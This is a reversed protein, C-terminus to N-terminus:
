MGKVANIQDRGVKRSPVGLRAAFNCAKAMLNNVALPLVFSKVIEGDAGKVQLAARIADYADPELVNEPLTRVRHFKRALYTEVDGGADMPRLYAKECRQIFERAKWGSQTRIDLKDELEPQAVLTVGVLRRMGLELDHLEKLFVLTRSPLKHAQDIVVVNRRGAEVSSRLLEYVRRARAQRSRPISGKPDLTAIISEQIDWGRLPRADKDSGEDAGLMYPTILSWKKADSHQEAFLRRITTKGSGSEGLVAVIRHGEIADRMSELAYGHEAGLFVDEPTQVEDRFPDRPLGFFRKASETLWEANTLMNNPEMNTGPSDAGPIAAESQDEIVTSTWLTRKVEPGPYIDDEALRGYLWCEIKAKLEERGLSKPWEDKGLILSISATSLAVGKALESQNVEWERLLSKLRIEAM